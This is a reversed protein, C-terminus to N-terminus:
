QPMVAQRRRRAISLNGHGRDSRRLARKIAQGELHHRWGSTGGHTGLQLHRIDEATMTMGIGSNVFAMEAPHLATDHGRDLQAPRRRETPMNLDALIARVRTHGIVGAAVPMTGLALTGGAVLPKGIAFSVKQGNGIEM